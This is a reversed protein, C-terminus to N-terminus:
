VIPRSGEAAAPRERPRVRAARLARGLRRVGERLREPPCATFNLRLCTAGSGDVSCVAGPLYSVRERAAEAMLRAPAVDDALRCWVYYGGEPRNWELGAAASKRLAALLADRRRAYEPRIRELHKALLGGRLFRAVLLQAYTGTHLDATQKAVALHRLAAVPGVMWGVRLGPFVLKSFTGLHLVYGRTDMAKLLPLPRGDYRLESYPDDEVVPVQYRYALELLRQRRALSMVVGTPNQFTPLTYVLKVRRRALVAELLDMRMGEGDVPVSLLRAGARRFTQLAGVFTPEETVVTDEPGLFVRSLLDIGQQSGSLVLVEAPTCAAGRERLHACLAERLEAVGETPGYQLAGPGVEALVREQAERLERLPFLEPAPAGLALPVADHQLNDLLDRILPDAAAIGGRVLQNWPLPAGPGVARVPLVTTGRGVHGELLGQDKLERYAALVTTRNVGLSRALTREPPLRLGEALQGAFIAERLQRSIQRYVPEASQRELKLGLM